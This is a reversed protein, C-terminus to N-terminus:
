NKNEYYKVTFPFNIYVSVETDEPDLFSFLPRSSSNYYAQWINFLYVREEDRSSSERVNKKKKKRGTEVHSM